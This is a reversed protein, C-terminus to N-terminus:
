QLQVNVITSNQILVNNGSNQIVMPLGSANAFSGEAISNNGTALNTAVNGGVMGSLTNANDINREAAGGRLAELGSEDLAQDWEPGAPLAARVAADVAGSETGEASAAIEAPDPTVAGQAVALLPTVVLALSAL